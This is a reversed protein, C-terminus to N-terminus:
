VDAEATHINTITITTVTEMYVMSAAQIHLDIFNVKLVDQRVKTKSNNICKPASMHQEM